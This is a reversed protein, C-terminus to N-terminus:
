VPYRRVKLGKVSKAILIKRDGGERKWGVNTVVSGGAGAQKVEGALGLPSHMIM